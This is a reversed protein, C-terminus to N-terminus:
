KIMMMMMLTKPEEKMKIMTMVIIMKMMVTMIMLSMRKRMIRTMVVILKIAVMAVIAVDHFINWPACFEGGLQNGM